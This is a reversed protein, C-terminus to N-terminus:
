SLGELCLAREDKRRNDLGKVVKGGAKNWALLSDCAGRLDGALAKRSMSSGCFAQTGINYAASVFAARTETPLVEPLCPSIAAGYEVLERAALSQCQTDTYTTNPKVGRTTGACATWVGVIDAYSKREWGEWQIVLPAATACAIFLAAVGAAGKQASSAM